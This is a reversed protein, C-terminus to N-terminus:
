ALGGVYKDEIMIIATLHMRNRSYPNPNRDYPATCLEEQTAWFARGESSSKLEADPRIDAHFVTCTYHKGDAHVITMTFLPRLNFVDVGLEERAERVACWLVSEGVECKGGAFEVQDRKAQHIASFKGDRYIVVCASRIPNELTGKENQKM